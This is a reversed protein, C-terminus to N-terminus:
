SPVSPRLTLLGVLEAQRSVDTKAFISKLHKRITNPEVGRELAIEGVSRGEVLQSAIKAEAATLDFLAELLAPRPGRQMTVETVYMLAYAGSFIDLASRRMPLVHVIMPPKDPRPTLPFSRGGAPPKRLASLIDELSSSSGPRSLLVKDRAGIRVSPTCSELADNFAIARGDSALVAAPFGIAQLIEVSARARELGIHSSLLAARALHPRLSDLADVQSRGVPGKQNEREVSFVLTEGAPSHIATGVCWGLGRPRLFESYFPERDLEELRFADLDTLFRPERIPILRKGRGNSELWPGNLWDDCVTQLSESCVLQMSAPMHAFLMAGVGDSIQAMADLVSIWREPVVAAEYIKDILHESDLIDGELDARSSNEGYCFAPDRQHRQRRSKIVWLQSVAAGIGLRAGEIM